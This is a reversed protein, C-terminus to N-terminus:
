TPRANETPTFHIQNKQAENQESTPAQHSQSSITKHLTFKHQVFSHSSANCKASRRLTPNRQLIKKLATVLTQTEPLNRSTHLFVLVHNEEPRVLSAPCPGDIGRWLGQLGSSATPLLLRYSHCWSYKGRICKWTSQWLIGVHYNIDPKPCLDFQNPMNIQTITTYQDWVSDCSNSSYDTSSGRLGNKVQKM